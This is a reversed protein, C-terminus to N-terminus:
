LTVMGDAGVLRVENELTISFREAITQKIERALSLVDQGTAGGQNVLVLPQKVHCASGGMVKGKFGSQDILWAAPVKVYTDDVPYHPVDSFTKSLREYHQQTIVPNKFFSGANGLQKPDPLKQQRIGIVAAYIDLPCPDKLKSLEGYHTVLCNRKPLRFVVSEIFWNPNQTQKFVSDRYGFRCEANAFAIRTKQAIDYVNVTEVFAAIEIGYAGINQIPAAGVTGPILALNEFGYIGLAMCTTVLQHWNEGSAVTLQWSDKDEEITLGRLKNVVIQGQYDDVFICNSGEGLLWFPLDTDLTEFDDLSQISIIAHASSPLAFTHLTSLDNM